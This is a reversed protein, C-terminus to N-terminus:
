GEIYEIGPFGPAHTMAAVARVNNLVVPQEGGMGPQGLQPAVPAPAEVPRQYARAATVAGGYLHLREALRFYRPSDLQM